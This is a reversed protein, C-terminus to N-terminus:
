NFFPMIVFCVDEEVENAESVAPTPLQVPATSVKRFAEVANKLANTLEALTSPNLEEVREGPTSPETTLVRTLKRSALSRLDRLLSNLSEEYRESNRFDISARQQLLLPIICDRYYIPIVRVDNGEMERLLASQWEQKPWASEFYDPSMVMLLFRSQQLASDLYGAISDGPRLDWQDYWVALGARGLDDVLKAVFERDVRSYSLFVDWAKM